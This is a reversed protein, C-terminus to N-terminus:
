IFDVNPSKVFKACQGLVVFFAVSLSFFWSFWCLVRVVAAGRSPLQAWSFYSCLLPRACWVARHLKGGARFANSTSVSPMGGADTSPRGTRRQSIEIGVLGCEIVGDATCHGDRADMTLRGRQNRYTRCVSTENGRDGADKHCM